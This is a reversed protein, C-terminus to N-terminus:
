VSDITPLTLNTYSVAPSTSRWTVFPAKVPLLTQQWGQWAKVYAGQAADFGDLLSAIVRHGAETSTSGFGLALVFAGNTVQLDVEGTLAVNGNEVRTFTWTMQKHQFLDQWGDSTGVYGASRALWPTSCGLALACGDREAFLMPVDKHEGWWATNGSGHNALHPALLVYLRYDLLTGQLPVFRTRQLVVDRSPDTVIEKEIRYRGQVCTNVLRYAPVGEALYAVQHHTHRKEESFFERGDTVILGLDRTCAQDVRPYYIENFIGHSLTFWVCSASSLATGVVRKASTWCCPTAHSTRPTSACSAVTWGPGVV